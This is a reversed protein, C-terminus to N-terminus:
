PAEADFAEMLAEAIETSYQVDVPDVLWANALVAVSLQDAPRFGVWSVYGNLSGNHFLLTDDGSSDIITSLGFDWGGGVPVPEWTIEAAVSESFLEGGWFARGWVVLDEANSAMNGSASMMSPLISATRDIGDIYGRVIDEWDEGEAPARTADLGLESALAAIEESWPRGAVETIVMGLYLYHSNSYDFSSGPEFLLPADVVLGALEAGSYHQVGGQQFAMSTSFDPVGASHNLLQRLTIEDGRPHVDIYTALSADLELLGADVHRLVVAAVFTKTVSAIKFRDDLEMPTEDGLDALGVSGIWPQLGPLAVAAVIGPPQHLEHQEVLAEDLADLVAADLSPVPPEPPEVEPPPEVCAAALALLGLLLLSRLSFPRPVSSSLPKM